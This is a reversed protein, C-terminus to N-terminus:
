PAQEAGMRPGLALPHGGCGAKRSNTLELRALRLLYVFLPLRLEAGEMIAYDLMAELTRVAAPKHDHAPGETNESM